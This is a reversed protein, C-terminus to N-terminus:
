SQNSQEDKNRKHNFAIAWAGFLESAREIQSQEEDAKDIKDGIGFPKIFPAPEQPKILFLPAACCLAHYVYLGNRWAFGDQILFQQERAKRYAECSKADGNWYEDHSMGMSLYAPYAEWFLESLKKRKKDLPLFTVLEGGM